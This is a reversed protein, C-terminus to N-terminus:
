GDTCHCARMLVVECELSLLLLTLKRARKETKSEPAKRENAFPSPRRVAEERSESRNKQLGGVSCPTACRRRAGVGIAHPRSRSPRRTTGVSRAKSRM